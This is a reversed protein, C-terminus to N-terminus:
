KHPNYLFVTKKTSFQVKKKESAERSTDKRKLISKQRKMATKSRAGLKAGRIYGKKRKAEGDTDTYKLENPIYIPKENNKLFQSLKLEKEYKCEDIEDEDEHKSVVPLVSQVSGMINISKSHNTPSTQFISSASRNVRESQVVLSNSPMVILKSKAQAKMSHDPTTELNSFKSNLESLFKKRGIPKKAGEM